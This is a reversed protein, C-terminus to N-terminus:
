FSLSENGSNRRSFKKSSFKTVSAEYKNMHLHSFHSVVPRCVCVCVCMVFIFQLTVHDEM